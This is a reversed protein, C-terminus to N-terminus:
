EGSSINNLYKKNIDQLSPGALKTKFGHCSFCNSVMMSMLGSTDSFKKRKQYASAQVSNANYKSRVLVEAAQIEGYKSDGDEADSVDVTYPVQTNWAYITQKDPTSLRIVPAHNPTQAFLVISILLKKHLQQLM